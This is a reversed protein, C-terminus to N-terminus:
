LTPLVDDPRVRVCLVKWDTKRPDKEAAALLADFKRDLAKAAEDDDKTIQASSPTASWGAILIGAFAISLRFKTM